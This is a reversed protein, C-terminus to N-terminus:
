IKDGCFPCYTHVLDMKKPVILGEVRVVVESYTVATMVKGEPREVIGFAYPIEAKIIRKGKYNQEREIQSPLEKICNCNM